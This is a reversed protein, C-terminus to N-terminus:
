ILWYLKIVYLRQCKSCFLAIINLTQMMIRDKTLSCLDNNILAFIIFTKVYILQMNRSTLYDFIVMIACDGV